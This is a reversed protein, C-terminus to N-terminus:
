RGPATTGQAVPAPPPAEPFTLRPLDFIIGQALAPAPLLALVLLLANRM